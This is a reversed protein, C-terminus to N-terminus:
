IGDGGMTRRAADTRASLMEEEEEAGSDGRGEEVGM